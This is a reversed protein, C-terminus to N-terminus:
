RARVGYNISLWFIAPPYDKAASPDSLDPAYKGEEDYGQTGATIDSYALTKPNPRYAMNAAITFGGLDYSFRTNVTKLGTRVFGTEVEWEFGGIKVGRAGISSYWAGPTDSSFQKIQATFINAVLMEWGFMIETPIGESNVPPSNRAPGVPRDDLLSYFVIAGTFKGLRNKWNYSLTYDIEDDREFGYFAGKPNDLEDDRNTMAFNGRIHMVIQDSAVIFEPHFVSTINFSGHEEGDKAFARVYRDDGRFVYNSALEVGYYMRVPRGQALVPASGFGLSILFSFGSFAMLSIKVFRNM